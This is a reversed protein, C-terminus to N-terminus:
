RKKKKNDLGSKKQKKKAKKIEEESDESQDEENHNNEGNNEDNDNDNDDNENKSKNKDNDNIGREDVFAVTTLKQKLYVRTVLKRSGIEFIRLYRDISVSALYPETPHTALCRVSGTPGSFKGVIRKKTIDVVRIGGHTDGVIVQMTENVAPNPIITNIHQLTDKCDIDKIPKKSERIDYLRIQSFATCAAILNSENMWCLDTTWKPVEMNLFDNAVNRSKFIIKGTEIDMIQMLANRGAYAIHNNNYPSCKMVELFIKNRDNAIPVQPGDPDHKPLPLVMENLIEKGDFSRVIVNGSRTCSVYKNSSQIYEMGCLGNMAKPAISRAFPNSSFPLTSFDFEGLKMSHSELRFSSMTGSRKMGSSGDEEGDEMESQNHQDTGYNKVLNKINPLVISSMTSDSHVAIYGKRNYPRIFSISYPDRKYGKARYNFLPPPITGEEVDDISKNAGVYRVYGLEDGVLVHLFDNETYEKKKDNDDDSDNDNGHGHKGRKRKLSNLDFDTIIDDEDSDSSM